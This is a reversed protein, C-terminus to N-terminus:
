IWAWEDATIVHDQSKALEELGVKIEDYSLSGSDDTDLAKFGERALGGEGPIAFGSIKYDAKDQSYDSFQSNLIVSVAPNFVSAGSALTKKKSTNSQKEINDTKNEARILRTELADIRNEYDQRMKLLETKLESIDDVGGAFLPTSMFLASTIMVALTTKTYM